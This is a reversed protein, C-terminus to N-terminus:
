GASVERAATRKRRNGEPPERTIKWGRDDLYRVWRKGQSTTAEWINGRQGKYMAIRVVTLGCSRLRKTAAMSGM